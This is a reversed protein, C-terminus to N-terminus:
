TRRFSDERKRLTDSNVAYLYVLTGLSRFEESRHRFYGVALMQLQRLEPRETVDDHGDAVPLFSCLEQLDTDLYKM